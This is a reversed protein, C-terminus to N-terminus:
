DYSQTFQPSFAGTEPLDEWESYRFRLDTFTDVAVQFYACACGSFFYEDIEQFQIRQDLYIANQELRTRELILRSMFQRFVERMTDLCRGRAAMDDIAHRKAFFVTKIRRTHPSNTLDTYGQSSDDVAIIATATQMRGLAEEFGQLGTVRCFKFGQEQALKNQETLQKFFATANWNINPIMPFPIFLSFHFIPNPEGFLPLTRDQPCPASGMYVEPSPCSGFVCWRLYPAQPSGFLKRRGSQTRGGSYRCRGTKPAHPAGWICRPAQANEWICVMPSIPSPSEWVAQTKRIPTRANERIATADLPETGWKAVSGIRPCPASGMYVGDSIYGADCIFM